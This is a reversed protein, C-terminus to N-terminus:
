SNLASLFNQVAASTSEPRMMRHMMSPRPMKLKFPNPKNDGGAPPGGPGEDGGFTDSDPGEDGMDDDGEDGPLGTPADDGDLDDGEDGGLDDLGSMDDDGMSDDDPMDEDGGLSDDPMDEDDGPPPMDSDDDGMPPGGAGPGGPAPLGKKGPGGLTQHMPPGVMEHMAKVLRRSAAMGENKDGLLKAVLNMAEPYQLMEAMLLNFFGNRRAEGVLAVVSSPNGKVLGSLRSVAEHVDGLNSNKKAMYAAFDSPSLKATADVFGESKTLKRAVPKLDATKGHVTKPTYKLAKDGKEAFGAENKEGKPSESDKSSGGKPGYPKGGGPPTSPVKGHFDPVVETKVKPAPDGGNKGKREELFQHWNKMM